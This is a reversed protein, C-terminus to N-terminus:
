PTDGNSLGFDFMRVHNMRGYRTCFLFMKDEKVCIQYEDLSNYTMNISKKVEVFKDYPKDHKHIRIELKNEYTGFYLISNNLRTFGVMNKRLVLDSYTISDPNKLTESIKVYSLIGSVDMKLLKDNFVFVEKLFTENTLRGIEKLNCDLITILCGQWTLIVDELATLNSLHTSVIEHVHGETSMISLNAPSALGPADFYRSVVVLNGNFSKLHSVKAHKESILVPEASLSLEYINGDANGAYLKDNLTTMSIILSKNEYKLPEWTEDDDVVIYRSNNLAKAEVVLKNNWVTYFHCIKLDHHQTTKFFEKETFNLNRINHNTHCDNVYAKFCDTLILLDNPKIFKHSKIVTDYIYNSIKTDWLKSVRRCTFVDKFDLRDY